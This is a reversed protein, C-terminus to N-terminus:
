LPRLHALALLLRKKGVAEFEVDATGPLPDVRLVVGQGYRAHVVHAGECVSSFPASDAGHALVHASDKQAFAEARAGGLRFRRVRRGVERLFRSPEAARAHGSVRRSAAHTFIVRNRARTLGLYLLRRDGDVEGRRPLVDEELGTLFVVKFELGRADGLTLLRVGRSSDSRQRSLRRSSQSEDDDQDQDPEAWPIAGTAAVRRFLQPLAETAPGAFGRSLDCLEGIGERRSQAEIPPLEDLLSQYGTREVVFPILEALPLRHSAEGLDKLLRGLDALAGARQATVRPLEACLLAAEGLSIRDRKQLRAIMAVSAPGIGRRPVNAVCALAAPDGGSMGMRLYCLVDRIERREYFRQGRAARYPLGARALAEEFVRAQLHRAYLIAVSALSSEERRVLRATWRAVLDAEEDEDGVQVCVVRAGRKRTAIPAPVDVPVRRLLRSVVYLIRGTSRYNRALVHREAWPFADQWDTARTRLPDSLAYVQCTPSVLHRLVEVEPGRLTEADDILVHDFRRQYKERVRHELLSLVDVRVDDADFANARVLARQYAEYFASPEFPESTGRQKHASLAERLRSVSVAEPDMGVERAAQRVFTRVSAESLVTFSKRRGLKTAYARLIRLCVSSVTGLWAGRLEAGWLVQVRAYTLGAADDTPTVVLIRRPPVGQVACLYALRRHLLRTKGTGAGGIVLVSGSMPTVAARQEEDLPLLIPPVSRIM